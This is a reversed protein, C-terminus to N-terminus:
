SAEKVQRRVEDVAQDLLDLLSTGQGDPWLVYLDVTVVATGDPTEANSSVYATLRQAM